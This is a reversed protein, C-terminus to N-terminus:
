EIDFDADIEMSGIGDNGLKTGNGVVFNGGITAGGVGTITGSNVITAECSCEPLTTKSPGTVINDDCECDDTELVYIEHQNISTLISAASTAMAVNINTLVGQSTIQDMEFCTIYDVYTRKEIFNLIVSAEIKGGFSVDTANYAWPALFAKIEDNLLRIHYGPDVGTHFRVNFKVLVEEYIPNKVYIEVCPPAIQRIFNTIESLIALSTLPQLLNIANQNRVNSVVALSVCGPVLENINSSSIFRTHNMCKVKYIKPFKELILREYDWIMVARNKHRLRESIRIYFATDNEKPSGGFSAYPQKIGAIGGISNVLETVSEAPLAEHYHTDANGTDSFEAAVSQAVIEIMDCIARSNDEVSIKLWSYGGPLRTNNDTINGPIDLIVIGSTLLGNTGDAIIKNDALSIWENNSLYSWKVKQTLLNPDASGEAVKFLVSLVQPANLQAIGIYLTGEDEYRPLLWSTTTTSFLFPHVERVGFPEIHFYSTNKNDYIEATTNVVTNTLSLKSTATYNVSLESIEPTYPENPLPYDSTGNIAANIAQTAYSNQYDSHGFDVNELQLRIFGSQSEVTYSELEELNPNGGTASLVSNNQISIQRFSLLKRNIPAIPVTFTVFPGNIFSNLTTAPTYIFPEQNFLRATDSVWPILEKWARGELIDIKAKFNNNARRRSTNPIIPIYNRYYGFFGTSDEPLGKWNINLDISTLQKRFLEQSGIYFSSSLKPRSGFPQFPNSPDLVGNDNQIILSRVGEVDVDIQVSTIELGKLLQYIYPNGSYEKNLLVRVVPWSTDFPEELIEQNYAVIAPQNETVTRQIIITNSGPVGLYTADSPVKSTYDSPLIWEEEGSFQVNFADALLSNSLGSINNVTLTLKIIRNGEALFLVPSTVAFGIDAQPRGSTGSNFPAAPNNINGFTRWKPETSETKKGEGNESNAIPSAYLRGDYQKNYFLSKFQKTQARTVVIDNKTRYIRTNGEDDTGADIAVDRNVLIRNANKALEFLVFIQDPVEQKESLRLVDKYYFDLHRKTITNISEQAYHFLEFFAIFLGYHPETRQGLEDIMQGVVLERWNGDKQNNQNYYQIQSAFKDVFEILAKMDREDVEVYDPLLAKILRQQQSTGDRFLPNKNGCYNSM